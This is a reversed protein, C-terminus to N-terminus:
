LWTFSIGISSPALKICLWQSYALYYVLEKFQAFLEKMSYHTTYVQNTVYQTFVQRLGIHLVDFYLHVNLLFNFSQQFIVLACM